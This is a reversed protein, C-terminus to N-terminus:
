RPLPVLYLWAQMDRPVQSSGLQVLGWFSFRPIGGCGSLGTTLRISRWVSCGVGLRAPSSPSASVFNFHVFLRPLSWHSNCPGHNSWLRARTYLTSVPMALGKQEEGMTRSRVPFAFQNNTANSISASNYHNGRRVNEKDGRRRVEGGRFKWDPWTQGQRRAAISHCGSSKQYEDGRQENGTRGLLRVEQDCARSHGRGRRPNERPCRRRWLRWCLLRFWIVVVLCPECPRKM